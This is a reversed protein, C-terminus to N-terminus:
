KTLFFNDLKHHSFFSTIWHYLGVFNSCNFFQYPTIAQSTEGTAINEEFKFIMTKTSRSTYLLPTTSRFSAIELCINKCLHFKQQHYWHVFTQFHLCVKSISYLGPKSGRFYNSFLPSALKRLCFQRMCKGNQIM